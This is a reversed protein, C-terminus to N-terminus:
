HNNFNYRQTYVSQVWKDTIHRMGAATVGFILINKKKTKKLTYCRELLDLTVNQLQHQLAAQIVPQTVDLGLPTVEM